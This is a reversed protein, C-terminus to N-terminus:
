SDTKVWKYYKQANPTDMEDKPANNADMRDFDWPFWPEGYGNPASGNADHDPHWGSEGDVLWM